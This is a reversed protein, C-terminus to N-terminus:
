ERRDPLLAKLARLGRKLHLYVANQTVDMVEAIEAVSLGNRWHLIMATRRAEPFGAIARFAAEVEEAIALTQDAAEPASGMGPSREDSALAGHLRAHRRESRV